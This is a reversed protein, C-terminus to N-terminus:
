RPTRGEVVTIALRIGDPNSDPYYLHGHADTMKFHAISTGPLLHAKCHVAIDVTEGPETHPIPSLAPTSVQGASGLSGLRKLYRDEWAVTGANRLRWVKVFREGPAMLTGDPVTVDDVWQSVDGPIPRPQAPPPTEPAQAPSRPPRNSRDEAVVDALFGALIGDGHLVTDFTAVLEPSPRFKGLETQSITTSSCEAKQALETQSLRNIRRLYRLHAGLRALPTEPAPLPTEPRGRRGGAPRQAANM